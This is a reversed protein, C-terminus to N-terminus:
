RLSEIQTSSIPSSPNGWASRIYTLIEAAERNDLFSFAPMAQAGNASTKGQLLLEILPKPDGSVWPNKALAPFVGEVGAGDAKHCSACYSQYLQKGDLAVVETAKVPSISNTSQRKTPSIKLIQDDGPLPFGPQPNWDQNSTSLYIAGDPGVAVDRLRGYRNEFLIEESPISQGDASLFLIRLSKGKLTTLLLTNKWEPIAESGYYTMGAPAIVPTWSRIPEITQNAAAFELEAPLDQKGEIAPWGYNGSKQILNVEDEIADGHESTYLLGSSSFALGQMNRFGWAWVASTPDPNDAPISGDPNLRLIKGNLKERNQAYTYDHKDGTAWYLKGDPGFALRSGNHSTGGEIEMLVKPEILTDGKYTYRVLKSRILSDNKVTYNLYLFPNKSFDPHSVMGLLGSTRVKWVEPIQLLYRQEGTQLNIRSVKGEQEAIWLFGESDVELDWPVNLSDALVEVKLTSTALQITDLQELVLEPLKSQCSALFALAFFWNKSM